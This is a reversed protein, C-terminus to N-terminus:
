LVHEDVTAEQYIRFRSRSPARSSLGKEVEVEKWGKNNM